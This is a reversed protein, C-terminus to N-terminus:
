RRGSELTLNRHIVDSAQAQEIFEDDFLMPKLSERMNDFSTFNGRNPTDM